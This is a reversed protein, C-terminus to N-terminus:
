LHQDKRPLAPSMPRRTGDGLWWAAIVLMAMMMPTRAPYDFLSAVAIMLLMASGLRPLMAEAASLRRWAAISAVLWWGMGAVLLCIGAVGADLAVELFDNHAHNFYTLKLLAFPEHMRFIPEFGGIGSGVPFYTRIMSLVTPLGRRRMDTGPDLALVRDIAVARDAALSLLVFLAITAVIGAIFAPLLWRPGQRLMAQLGHRSLILGSAIGIVGLLLGARSGTALITLAFLLLLMFAVPGRWGIREGPLFAWVPVLACGLALFLALHNRNAFNGSVQNASDNILPNGFGAGSFQALGVLAAVSVMIVLFSPLYARDTRRLGTLLILTAVPVVLSAVANRTAGPTMTLPRWPQAGGTALVADTVPGRGPLAQWLGPPLPVLHLLVLGVAAALLLAVPGVPRFDSREGFLIVVILALWAVGRVLAQGLVDGRSAGGGVFLTTLLIGLLILFLSPRFPSHTRHDTRM